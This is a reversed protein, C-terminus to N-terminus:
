LMLVSATGDTYTDRPCATAHPAHVQPPVDFVREQAEVPLSAHLPLV